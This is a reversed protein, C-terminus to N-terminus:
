EFLEPAPPMDPQEPEEAFQEGGGLRDLETFWVDPDEIIPMLLIGNSVRSVRVRSGALRHSVPIRVAQSGGDM